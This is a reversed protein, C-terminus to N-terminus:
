RPVEQRCVALLDRQREVGEPGSEAFGASLVVLAGVGTAACEQAVGVVEEAPVALVALDVPGPVKRISPYASVSQVVTAGSNVPYVPGTFGAARLNHYLEGGVTGRRRSAGIVAVSRPALVRRLAAAAAMEERQDFRGLADPTLLTPAEVSIVGPESRIRVAFGSDRFVQLMQYNGPLVQATFLEVGQARASEALQGLLLTGQRGSGAPTPSSATRPGPPQSWATAASITSRHRGPLWGPCTSWARSSGCTAHSRRSGKCCGSWAQHTARGPPACGCRPATGCCLMPRAVPRTIVGALLYPPETPPPMARRRIRLSGLSWRRAGSGVVCM